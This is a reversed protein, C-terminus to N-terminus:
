GTQTIRRSVGDAYGHSTRGWAALAPLYRWVEYRIPEGTAGTHWGDRDVVAGDSTLLVGGDDYYRAVTLVGDATNITTGPTPDGVLVAGVTEVLTKCAAEYAAFVPAPAPGDFSMVATMMSEVTRAAATNSALSYRLM